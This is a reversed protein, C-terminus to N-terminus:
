LDECGLHSGDHFVDLCTGQTNRHGMDEGNLELLSAQWVHM